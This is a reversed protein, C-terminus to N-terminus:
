IGCIGYGKSIFICIVFCYIGPKYCVGQLFSSCIMVTLSSPHDFNTDHLLICIRTSNCVNREKWRRGVRGERFVGGGGGGSTPQLCMMLRLSLLRGCFYNKLRLFLCRKPVRPSYEVFMMLRRRIM